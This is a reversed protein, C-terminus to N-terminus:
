KVNESRNIDNLVDQHRMSGNKLKNMHEIRLMTHHLKTSMGKHHIYYQLKDTDILELGSLVQMFNLPGYLVFRTPLDHEVWTAPRGEYLNIRDQLDEPLKKENYEQWFTTDKRPTIYHIRIFDFSNKYFKKFIENYVRQVSNSKKDYSHLYDLVTITQIVGTSLAAAELPEFFSSAIGIAACNNIWCDKIHGSKFEKINNIVTDPLDYGMSRVEELAMEPTCHKSSYVYGNGTRDQTPAQWFWGYKMAKSLTMPIPNDVTKYPFFLARDVILQESYDVFEPNFKSILLRKFGSCDFFFDAEHIQKGKISKINSNEDIEVDTIYDDIIEIDFESCKKRLYDNLAFNNFHYQYTKGKVFGSLEDRTDIEPNIFCAYGGIPMSMHHPSADCPVDEAHHSLLSHVYEHGEHLWDKFLVGVKMTAKTERVFEEEDIGSHKIFEQIHETTGEGVGLIPAKGSQIIKVDLNLNKLFTKCLIATMLGASGAGLVIINQIPYDKM